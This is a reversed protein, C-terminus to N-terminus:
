LRLLATGWTYGSGFAAHVILTGHTVRGDRRAVDLAMPISAATTNGFRAITHVVRDQTLGLQQAVLENIRQNAQHPVVVLEARE